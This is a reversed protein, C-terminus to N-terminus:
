NSSCRRLKRRDQSLSLLFVCNTCCQEYAIEAVLFCFALGYNTFIKGIRAM